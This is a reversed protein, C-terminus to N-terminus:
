RTSTLVMCKRCAQTPKLWRGGASKWPSACGAAWDKARPCKSELAGPSGGHHATGVVVSRTHAARGCSEPGRTTHDPSCLRRQQDAPHRSPQHQASGRNRHANGARPRPLRARPDAAHHPRSRGSPAASELGHEQAVLSLRPQPHSDKVRSMLRTGTARSPVRRGSGGAAARLRASREVRPQTLPLLSRMVPRCCVAGRHCSPRASLARRHHLRLPSSPEKCTGRVVAIM